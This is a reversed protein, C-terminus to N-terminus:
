CNMAYENKYKVVRKIYKQTEPFPPVGRYRQVRGPGANYAALAIVLNGDYRELLRKLYRTGGDINDMPDHIDRVKLYRATAPMLQMYGVAGCRSMADHRFNSEARIVAKILFPDIEYKQAILDITAELFPKESELAKQLNSLPETGTQCPILFALFAFKLYFKLYFIRFPM